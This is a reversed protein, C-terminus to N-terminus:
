PVIEFFLFQVRLHVLLRLVLKFIVSDSHGMGTEVIKIATEGCIIKKYSLPQAPATACSQNRARDFTEMVKKAEPYSTIEKGTM